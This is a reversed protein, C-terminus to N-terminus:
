NFDSTAKEGIPNGTEDTFIIDNKFGKQSYVLDLGIQFKRKFEYEYTLGSVFGNRYENDSLFNDSIVNTWNIGGKLGIVHNQGFAPITCLVSLFAIIKRM